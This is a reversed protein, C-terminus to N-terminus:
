FDNNGSSGLDWEYKRAVQLIEETSAKWIEGFWACIWDKRSDQSKYFNVFNDKYVIIKRIM